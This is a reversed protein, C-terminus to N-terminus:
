RTAVGVDVQELDVGLLKIAKRIALRVFRRRRPRRVARADGEHAVAGWIGVPLWGALHEDGVRLWARRLSGQRWGGAAAPPSFRLPTRVSLQDGEKFPILLFIAGVAHLMERHRCGVSGARRRAYLTSLIEIA